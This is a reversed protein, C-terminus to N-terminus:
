LKELEKVKGQMSVLLCTGPKLREGEKAIDPWWGVLKAAQVAFALEPFGSPLFIMRLKLNKLLERQGRNKRIRDDSTVVVWGHRAVVPMWDEDKVSTEAFEERLIRLDPEFLLRISEVLRPPLCNDFFYTTV